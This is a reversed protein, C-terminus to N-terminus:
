SQVHVSEVPKILEDEKRYTHCMHDKVVYLIESKFTSSCCMEGKEIIIGTVRTKRQTLTDWVPDGISFKTEIVAM